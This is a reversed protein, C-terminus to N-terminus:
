GSFIFNPILIKNEEIQVDEIILSRGGMATTIATPM